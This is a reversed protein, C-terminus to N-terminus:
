NQGLMIKYELNWRLYWIANLQRKLSMKATVIEWNGYKKHSHWNQPTPVKHFAGEKAKDTKRM